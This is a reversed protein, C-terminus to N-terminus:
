FADDVQPEAVPEDDASEDKNKKGIRRNAKPGSGLETKMGPPTLREAPRGEEYSGEEQTYIETSVTDNFNDKEYLGKSQFIAKLHTVELPRNDLEVIPVYTQNGSNHTEMKASIRVGFWQGDKINPYEDKGTQPDIRGTPQFFKNIGPYGKRPQGVLRNRVTSASSQFIAPFNHDILWLVFQPSEQCPPPQNVKNGNEDTYTIFKSLPCGDCKDQIVVKEKNRWDVYEKGVYRFMESNRPAIGDSSACWPEKTARDPKGDAKYPFMVRGNIIDILWVRLQDLIIPPKTPDKWDIIFQGPRAGAAIADTSMAQVISIRPMRPKETTAVNPRLASPDFMELSLEQDPIVTIDLDTM